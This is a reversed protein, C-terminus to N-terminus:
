KELSKRHLVSVCEVHNTRPFMNFPSIEEIKYIEELLKIDRKLTNPNCSVYVIKKPKINKLYTIVDKSLGKRPPDLIVTDFASNTVEKADKCIFTINDINNIKKNINANKISDKVIDIGLINKYNDKLYIGISGTGCYLDLLNNGTTAYSKVKDYLPKIMTTNVQFFANPYITYDINNIKEKIYSKGYILTNEQYISKINPIQKLPEINPINGTIKILIEDYYTSYRIMIEKTNTLNLKEITPLIRNINENLLPCTHINVLDHTNEQYYGIKDNKIHLTVKNRYNNENCTTIPMVKYDKFLKKIYNYKIDNEKKLNITRFHCGGCLDYYPCLSPIRDKSEELIEKLAGKIYNTNISTIKSIIYDNPVTKPIYIKKNQYIGVGSGLNTIDTIKLKICDNIKIM